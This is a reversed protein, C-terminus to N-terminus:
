LMLALVSLLVMTYKLYGSSNELKAEAELLRTKATCNASSCPALDCGGTKDNKVFGESCCGSICNSAEFECVACKSDCKSCTGANYPNNLTKFYGTNCSLCDNVTGGICSGCSPHCSICPTAKARNQVPDFFGESCLYCETSDNSSKCATCEELCSGKECLAGKGDVYGAGGVYGAACSYCKSDSSTEDNFDACDNATSGGCAPHCNNAPSIVFTALGLLCLVFISKM